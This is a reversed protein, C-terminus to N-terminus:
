PPANKFFSIIQRGLDVSALQRYFANAKDVGFGSIFNEIAVRARHCDKGLEPNLVYNTRENFLNLEIPYDAITDIVNWGAASCVRHLSKRSFYSIHEPPSIWFERDIYGDELLRQQVPSFDNPVEIVLLAQKNALQRCLKLLALPDPVHELVNDLWIVSYSCGSDLLRMAEHEVDGETLCDLVHPNHTKAGFSSYDIGNVKWGLELFFSLTWGEGAGLELVSRPSSEPLAKDVIEFKQLFKNKLYALETSSYTHSYRLESQYYKERYHKQLAEASPIEALTYTEFENTIIPTTKIM